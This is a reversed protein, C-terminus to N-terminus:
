PRGSHGIGPESALRIFGISASVVLWISSLFGLVVASALLAIIRSDFTVDSMQVLMAGHDFGTITSVGIIAGLAGIMGALACAAAALTLVCAVWFIRIQSRFHPRLAKPAEKVQSYAIVVAVLAPLGAFFIAAVLLAYGLMALNLVSDSARASTPAHGLYSTTM